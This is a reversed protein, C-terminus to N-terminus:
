KRGTRKPPSQAACVKMRRERIVRKLHARHAMEERIEEDTMSAQRNIERYFERTKERCKAFVSRLGILRVPALDSILKDLTMLHSSNLQKEPSASLKRPVEALKLSFNRKKLISPPKVPSSSYSTRDPSSVTVDPSNDTYVGPTVRESPSTSFRVKAVKLDSAVRESAFVETLGRSHM